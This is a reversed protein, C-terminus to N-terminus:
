ETPTPAQWLKVRNGAPDIFWGFRGYPYDETKEEAQAGGEAVQKLAEDLDDVMINIMFKQEPIGFYDSDKAFPSWVTFGEEPIGASPFPAYDGDSGPFSLWKRYWAALGTPDETKFFIGGIGLAKAM